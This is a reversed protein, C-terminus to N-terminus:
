GGGAGAACTVGHEVRMLYTGAPFTTTRRGERWRTLAARYARLFSKLQVLLEIRKWKDRTAVRPRLTRRPEGPGPRGLPWQAAVRDAGLFEKRGTAAEAERAQLSEELAERFEEASAFGPPVSLELAAAEPMTGSESFFRRPRAFRLTSGIAEPAMWLGPWDRGRRVLGAAVPNALVYAAKDVVDAPTALAVASYSGPAWFSEWRGLVSNIARAVLSGLYQQFAPLEARTDTVLLHFHNSLVCYAHVKVGHREAALALVYGFIADSLKSPRLFLQRQFCRRTVLYVAGPLIQRPATM